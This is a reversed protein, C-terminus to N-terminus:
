TLMVDPTLLSRCRTMSEASAVVPLTPSRGTATSSPTGPPGENNLYSLCGHGALANRFDLLMRRTNEPTDPAQIGHHLHVEIEGWGARCHAALPEILRKDYHEAPYFYTHRLPLGDVDRWPDALASYERCWAEIRREREDLDAFEPMGPMLEPEFHNAIAVMVHVPGRSPLRRTARQWCYAPLWRLSRRAKVIQGGLVGTRPETAIVPAGTLPSRSNEISRAHVAPGADRRGNRTVEYADLLTCAVRDWGFAEEVVGRGAIGLQGAAGTDSLLKIVRQAFAEASDALAINKGDEVPLGEAGITTSVVPKGLAWAELIKLRTGGGIRLPVVVLRAQRLYPRVDEVTGTFRVAPATLTRVLLESPNSGVILLHADPDRERIKPLIERVFFTAGDINPPWDMAGTFVILHPDGSSSDPTFQTLDVGNRVVSVAVGPAMREIEAADAESVALCRDFQRYRQREAKLTKSSQWRIVMKRWWPRAQAAMRRILVSEVNHANLLRPPTSLGVLAHAVQVHDCHILDYQQDQLAKRIHTIFRPHGYRTWTYPLSDFPNRVARGIRNLLTEPAIKVAQVTLRPIAAELAALAVEKGRNDSATILTVDHNGSIERLLHFTRIRGGSDPPYPPRATLFAIKM